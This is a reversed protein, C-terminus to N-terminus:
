QLERLANQAIEIQVLDSRPDAMRLFARYERVAQEKQGKSRLVRGMHYHVWRNDLRLRGATQYEVIAGTMDGKRELLSGLFIHYGADDPKLQIAARYETIGGELDGSDYLAQIHGGFKPCQRLTPKVESGHLPM